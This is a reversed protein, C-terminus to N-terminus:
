AASHSPSSDSFLARLRGEGPARDTAWWCVECPVREDGRVITFGAVGSSATAAEALLEAFRRREEMPLLAEVALGALQTTPIGTLQEVQGSANMICGNAHVEFTASPHEGVLTGYGRQAMAVERDRTAILTMSM